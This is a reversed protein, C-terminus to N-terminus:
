KNRMGKKIGMRVIGAVAAAAIDARCCITNLLFATNMKM